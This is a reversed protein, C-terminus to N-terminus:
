AFLVGKLALRYAQLSLHQKAWTRGREALVRRENEPLALAKGLAHSLTEPARGEYLLGGQSRQVLEAAGGSGDSVIPLAGADWAEMIVRGLSEYKSSVVLFRVTRLQEVVDPVFGCFRVRDKLGAQEVLMELQQPFTDGEVGEGYLLLDAGTQRAPTLAMAEVLERQGKGESLRGVCALAHERAAELRPPGIVYPDYCTVLQESRRPEGYMRRMDDSVFVLSVPLKATQALVRCRPVDEALRVHIVLPLRFLRAVVHVIRCLGAQNLYLRDFRGGACIKLLSLLAAARQILGGRHLNGIPASIVSVPYDRLVSLLVSGTPVVITVSAWEEALLRLTALLARESGWLQLGPDVIVLRGRSVGPSM